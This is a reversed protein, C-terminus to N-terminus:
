VCLGSAYLVITTDEKLVRSETVSRHTKALLPAESCLRPRLRRVRRRVLAEDWTAAMGIAQPFVTAYGSRAVGHLAEGWWNYSPVGLRTIEPATYEMQHIKETLTMRSVLDDVRKAIPLSADKYPPVAAGTQAHSLRTLGSAFLVAVLVATTRGIAAQCKAQNM